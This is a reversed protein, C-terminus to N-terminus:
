RHRNWALALPTAALRVMPLAFLVLFALYYTAVIGAPVSWALISFLVLGVILWAIIWRRATRADLLDRRQAQRLAWGATLLRCVILTGLLWPLVALFPKQTEPHHYIWAGLGCVVFFLAMGGFLATQIAWKRGTLGLFLSDVHRKWTGIVLLTAAALIMATVKAPDLDHLGKRWSAAIEDQNGTLVVALPAMVIVAAWALLTSWAASKLKAGVMGATTMPLTATFQAVGYYDKVWPNKGSVTTGAMGAFFIPITLTSLVTRWHPMEDNVDFALPLLAFPLVAATMFPLSNGTRRWEFWAQARAASAFLRRRWPLWDALQALQRLPRFLERWDSIDGCRANRVGLYAVRWGVAAAGLFLCALLGESVNGQAAFHAAAVVGVSLAIALVGRVWPLGFSLWLLAQCWAVTAATLVAPWWLPVNLDLHKLWPRLVLAATALWLLSAALAALALFWAALPGTRVPLRFLRPPFCSERAGVDVNLGFTGVGILFFAIWSLPISLGAAIYAGVEPAFYGPLAASVIGAMFLYGITTVLPWRHERWLAWSIALSPSMM